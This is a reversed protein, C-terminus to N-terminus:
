VSPPSCQFRLKASCLTMPGATTEPSRSPLLAAETGPVGGGYAMCSPFVFSVQCKELFLLMFALQTRATVCSAFNGLGYCVCKVPFTSTALPEESGGPSSDLHLRGLAETLAQLQELLKRLCQAVTESLGNGGLATLACATGRLLVTLSPCCAEVGLIFSGSVQTRAEM